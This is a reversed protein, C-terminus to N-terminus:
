PKVSQVEESMVGCGGDPNMCSSESGPASSLNM